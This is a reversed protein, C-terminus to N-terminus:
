KHQVVKKDGLKRRRKKKRKAKRSLSSFDGGGAGNSGGIPMPPLPPPPNGSGPAITFGDLLGTVDESVTEIGAPPPQRRPPQGNPPPPPKPAPGRCGQLDNDAAIEQVYSGGLTGSSVVRSEEVHQLFM